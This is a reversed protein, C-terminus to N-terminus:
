NNPPFILHLATSSDYWYQTSGAPYALHMNLLHHQTFTYPRNSGIARFLRNCHLIQLGCHHPDTETHQSNLNAMDGTNDEHLNLTCSDHSMWKLTSGLPHRYHYQSILHLKLLLLTIKSATEWKDDEAAM